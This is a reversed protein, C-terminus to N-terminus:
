YGVSYKPKKNKLGLKLNLVTVEAMKARTEKTSSGIHPALVVNDLKTLPHNKGIPESFFVDLAAGAIEKKKLSNVLDKENIIKGRATNILFSDKKMKKLIKADIMQHTEKTYPVHISIVDSKSFLDNLSVYKVGLVKEKSKSLRKRNHYLINMGFVKAKKVFSIGIRGLGLVGVTKGSIETGVYTDAGFVEKWGGKRILADGETVRRMLDLMLTFALDATTDTLVDPTFGVRIKKEKAYQLNIHDYGVSFTSISKLNQASDIVQQDIIDYPMCILGEKDRIKKMLINKPIPFKGSYVEIQFNKRLEKLAFDQLKRTLLIKPKTSTM